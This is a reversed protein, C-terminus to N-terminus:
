TKSEFWAPTWSRLVQVVGFLLLTYFLDGIVQTALFPLAMVYCSVLGAGTKPYFSENMWVGFNTVLFFFLSAVLSLGGFKSPKASDKLIFSSALAILAVASYVYLMTSHFGLILDSLWLAAVPVLVAAWRQSLYAGGLLAIATVATLNPVHPVLRSLAGGLILLVIVAQKM